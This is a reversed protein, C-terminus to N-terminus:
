PKSADGSCSGATSCPTASRSCTPGRPSLCGAPGESTELAPWPEGTEVNEEDGDNDTDFYGPLPPRRATRHRPHLHPSTCPTSSAARVQQAWRHRHRDRHGRRAPRLRHQLVRLRHRPPVDAQQERDPRDGRHEDLPPRPPRALEKGLDDAQSYDPIGSTHNLLQRITVHGPAARSRLPVAARGAQAPRGRGAPPRGGRRLGQHHQRDPVHAGAYPRTGTGSAAHRQRRGLDPGGTPSGWSRRPRM